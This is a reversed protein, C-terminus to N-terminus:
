SDSLQRQAEALYETKSIVVTAAALKIILDNHSRLKTLAEGEPPTLNDRRRISSAVRWTDDEVARIYVEFLVHLGALFWSGARSTLVAYAM